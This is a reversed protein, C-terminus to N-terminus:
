RESVNGRLSRFLIAIKVQGLREGFEEKVAGVKNSRINDINTQQHKSTWHFDESPLSKTLNTMM